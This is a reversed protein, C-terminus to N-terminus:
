ALEFIAEVEVAANRPLSACGVAFRAHRGAEGMVQVMLDSAGNVVEPHDGFEPTCAVFGGLKLCRGLRDLEGGCAAKAQALLNLACLRAAEQGDAVSVEAGLRGTVAVQRGRFPLQGAVFLLRGSITYPAYNAAPAPADPLEFGQQALRQEVRSTVKGEEVTSPPV